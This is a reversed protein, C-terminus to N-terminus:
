KPNNDVLEQFTRGLCSMLIGVFFYGMMQMWLVGQIAFNYKWYGLKSMMLENFVGLILFVAVDFVRLMWGNTIKMSEAIKNSLAISMVSLMGWGLVVVLPVDKWIMPALKESYTWCFEFCMENYFGFVTGGLLCGLLWRGAILRSAAFSLVLIGFFAISVMPTGGTPYQKNTLKDAQM